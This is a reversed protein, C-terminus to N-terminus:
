HCAAEGGCLVCMMGIVHQWVVVFYLVVRFVHQWVVLCYVCLVYSVSGCWCIVCVM